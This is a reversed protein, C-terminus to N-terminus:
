FLQTWTLSMCYNVDTVWTLKCFNVKFCIVNSMQNSVPCLGSDGSLFDVTLTEYLLHPGQHWSIQDTKLWFHPFLMQLRGPSLCQRYSPRVPHSHNSSPWSQIFDWRDTHRLQSGSWIMIWCTNRWSAGRHEPEWEAAQKQPTRTQLSHTRHEDKTVNINLFQRLREQKCSASTSSNWVQWTGLQRSEVVRWNVFSLPHLLRQAGTSDNNSWQAVRSDPWDVTWESSVDHTQAAYQTLPTTKKTESHRKTVLGLPEDMFSSVEADGGLRHHGGSFVHAGVPPYLRRINELFM